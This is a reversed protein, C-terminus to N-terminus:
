TGLDAIIGLDVEKISFKADNTSFAIDCGSILDIGGGICYGNVGVLVPFRCNEVKEFAKQL